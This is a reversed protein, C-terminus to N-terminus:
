QNETKKKLQWKAINYETHVKMYEHLSLVNKKEVWELMECRQM